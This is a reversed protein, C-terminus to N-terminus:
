SNAACCGMERPPPPPFEELEVACLEELLGDLEDAAGVGLLKVASM